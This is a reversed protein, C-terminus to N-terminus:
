GVKLPYTISMVIWKRYNIEILFYDNYASGKKSIVSGLAAEMIDNKYVTNYMNRRTHDSITHTHIIAIVTTCQLGVRHM